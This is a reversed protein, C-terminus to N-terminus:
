LMARVGQDKPGAPGSADNLQRDGCVGLRDRVGLGDRRHVASVHARLAKLHATKVVVPFSAACRM